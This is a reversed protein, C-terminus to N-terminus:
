GVGGTEDTWQDSWHGSPPLTYPTCQGQHGTPSKCWFAIPTRRTRKRGCDGVGQERSPEGNKRWVWLAELDGEPTGSYLSRRRLELWVLTGDPDQLQHRQVQFGVPTLQPSTTM